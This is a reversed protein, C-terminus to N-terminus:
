KELEARFYRESGVGLQNIVTDFTHELNDVKLTETVSGKAVVEGHSMLVIEDALEAALNIDHMV